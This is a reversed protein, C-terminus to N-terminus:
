ADCEDRGRSHASEWCVDNRRRSTGKKNIIKKQTISLVESTVLSLYGCLRPFPMQTHIFFPLYSFFFLTRAIKKKLRV